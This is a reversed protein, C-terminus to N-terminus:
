DNEIQRRCHQALLDNKPEVFFLMGGTLINRFASWLQVGDAGYENDIGVFFDTGDQRIGHFGPTADILNDAHDVRELRTVLVPVVNYRWCIPLRYTM